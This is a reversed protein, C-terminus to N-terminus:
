VNEQPKVVVKRGEGEGISETSVQSNKSLVLHIIRREYATMPKMVILKKEDLAQKAALEAQEVLSQNKERRYSNIDVMFKIKDETKRRVILRALHQIAQLNIGQQGILFNSDSEVKIDCIASTKEEESIEPYNLGGTDDRVEIECSFGMKNILDNVSNKIIEKNKEEM